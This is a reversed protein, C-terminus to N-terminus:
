SQGQQPSLVLQRTRIRRDERVIANARRVTEALRGSRPLDHLEAKGIESATFRTVWRVNPDSRRDVAAIGCVNCPHTRINRVQVAIGRSVFIIREPIM